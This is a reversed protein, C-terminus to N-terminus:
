RKKLRRAKLSPYKEELTPLFAEWEDRLGKKEKSIFVLKKGRLEQEKIEEHGLKHFFASKALARAAERDGRQLEYYELLMLWALRERAEEAAMTDLTGQYLAQAKEASIWGETFEAELVPSGSSKLEAHTETKKEVSRCAVVLFFLCPLYKM